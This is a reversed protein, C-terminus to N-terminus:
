EATARQWRATATGLLGKLIEWGLEAGGPQDPAVDAFAAVPHRTLVVRAAVPGADADALALEGPVAAALTRLGGDGIPVAADLATVAGGPARYWGTVILANGDMAPVSVPDLPAALLFADCYRGGSAVGVGLERPAAALADEVVAAVVVSADDAVVHDARAERPGWSWAPARAATPECPVLQASLAVVALREIGLQYGLDNVFVWAGDQLRAGDWSWRLEYRVRADAGLTLPAASGDGPDWGPEGGDPGDAPAPLGCAWVVAFAAGASARALWSM